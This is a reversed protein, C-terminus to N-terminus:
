GIGLVFGFCLFLFLDTTNETQTCLTKTLNLLSSIRWAGLVSPPSTNLSMANAGGCDGSYSDHESALKFGSECNVSGREAISRIKASTQYRTLAVCAYFCAHVCVGVGVFVMCNSVCTYMFMFMLMLM